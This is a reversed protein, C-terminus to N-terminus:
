PASVERGIHRRIESAVRDLKREQIGCFSRSLPIARSDDLDVVLRYLRQTGATDTAQLQERGVGAISSLPVEGAHRGLINRRQWRFLQRDLDFSFSAFEVLYCAGLLPLAVGFGLGALESSDLSGALLGGVHEFLVAPPILLLLGPLYSRYYVMLARGELETTLM